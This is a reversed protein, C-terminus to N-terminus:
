SYVGYEIRGLTDKILSTGFSTDLFNIPKQYNLHRIESHLWSTFAELTGLVEIGRSIVTAIELVQETSYVNLLDSDSKRQITRHSVHILNSMAEMSIGLIKSVTVVVSKPLGKRTIEILDLDSNISKGVSISGGLVSTIREYKNQLGYFAQPEEAMSKVSNSNMFVVNTVFIVNKTM